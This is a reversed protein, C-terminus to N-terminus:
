LQPSAALVNRIPIIIEYARYRYNAWDVGPLNVNQNGWICVRAPGVATGSCAQSVVDRELLNNRAVLAVRVAKVRNRAGVALTAAGWTGGTADVWQNVIESNATASIGYQAQLAVIENIVPQGNKRLENGSIDFVSQRVQGLCALKKPFGPAFMGANSAVTISNTNGATDLWTNTSTVRSGVCATDGNNSDGVVLVVDNERCGLNNQLGVFNAGTTTNIRTPIAGRTTTGYMVTITDSNVGDTISVPTIIDVPVDPTTADNDADVNLVPAPSCRLASYNQGAAVTASDAALQATYASAAAASLADIEAQTLGTYDAFTLEGPATSVVPLTGSVVPVGYGAFQLERQIMYLGISGNTQADAVGTTTRKSGEFSAFTQMIVLTAILGIVLGVMVEVLTFGAQSVLNTKKLGLKKLHTRM